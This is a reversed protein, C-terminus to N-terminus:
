PVQWEFPDPRLQNLVALPVHVTVGDADTGPEFQYSLRLRVGDLVWHDPYDSEDVDGASENVLMSPTFTLLDPDTRRAKKWWSDFHAGSVVEPPIREDYFAFLTEDDVVIDRRRARHELEEVEALLQ